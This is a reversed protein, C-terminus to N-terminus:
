DLLYSSYVQFWYSVFDSLFLCAFMFTFMLKEEENQINTLGLKM